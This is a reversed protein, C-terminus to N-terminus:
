TAKKSDSSYSYMHIYPFFFIIQFFFRNEHLINITLNSRTGSFTCTVSHACGVHIIWCFRDIAPIRLKQLLIFQAKRIILLWKRELVVWWAFIVLNCHLVNNIKWHKLGSRVGWGRMSSQNLKKRWRHLCKCSDELNEMFREFSWVRAKM